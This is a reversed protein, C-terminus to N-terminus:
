FKRSWYLKGSSKLQVRSGTGQRSLCCALRQAAWDKGWSLSFVFTFCKIFPFRQLSNTKKDSTILTGMRSTQGALGLLPFPSEKSFSTPLNPYDRLSHHSVIKVDEWCSCSSFLYMPSRQKSLPQLLDPQVLMSPSVRALQCLILSFTLVPWNELSSPIGLCWYTSAHRQALM